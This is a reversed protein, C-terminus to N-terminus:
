SVLKRFLWERSGEKFTGLWLASFITGVLCLLLASALSLAIDQGELWGLQELLGMGLVIHEVYLSLALRGTQSLWRIPARNRYKYAFYLSAALVMVSSCTASVMYQPLSPIISVSLLFEEEDATLGVSHEDGVEMRIVYFLTESLLFFALALSFLRLRISTQSLDM